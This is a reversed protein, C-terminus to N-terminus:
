RGGGGRVVCVTAPSRDLCYKTVSSGCGGGGCFSGGGGGCCGTGKLGGGVVVLEAQLEAGLSRLAEGIGESRDRDAAETPELLHVEYPVGAAELLPAFRRGIMARSSHLEAQAALPDEPCFPNKSPSPPSPSLSPPSSVRSGGKKERVYALHFTDGPRAVNQLAWRLAQSCCDSDAVPCLVSRSSSSTSTQPKSSTSTSTSMM